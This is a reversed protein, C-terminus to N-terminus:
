QASKTNFRGLDNNYFFPRNLTLDPSALTATGELVDHIFPDRPNLPPSPLLPPQTGVTLNQRFAINQAHQMEDAGRQGGSRINETERLRLKLAVIDANQMGIETETSLLRQKLRAM